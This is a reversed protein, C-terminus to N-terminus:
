SGTGSRLQLHITSMSHPVDTCFVLVGPVECGLQIGAGGVSADLNGFRVLPPPLVGLQQEGWGSHPSGGSPQRPQLQSYPSKPYQQQQQPLKGYQQTAAPRHRPIAALAATLHASLAPVVQRVAAAAIAAALADSIHGAPDQQDDAAAGVAAEAAALAARVTLMAHRQGHLEPPLDQAAAAANRGAVAQRAPVAAAADAAAQAAALPELVSHVAALAVALSPAEKSPQKRLGTDSCCTVPVADLRM